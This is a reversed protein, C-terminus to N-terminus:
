GEGMSAASARKWEVKIDSKPIGAKDRALSATVLAPGHRGLLDGALRRFAKGHKPVMEWVTEPAYFRLLHERAAAGIKGSSESLPKFSSLLKDATFVVPVILTSGAALFQKGEREEDVLPVQEGERAFALIWNEVIKLEKERAEIEARL